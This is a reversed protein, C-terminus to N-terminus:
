PTEPARFANVGWADRLKAPKTPLGHARSRDFLPLGASLVSNFFCMLARSMEEPREITVFHGSDILLIAELGPVHEEMGCAYDVPQRPDHEGHVYVVPMTLKSYDVPVNRRIDRFYRPVAEALGPHSWEAIMERVTAEDPELGPKCASLVWTRIFGEPRRMLRTLADPDAAFTQHQLTNRPDYRHLSICCRMYREVRDPVQECVHDGIISGWDHGALRFRGIGLDDLLAVLERAVNRPTYDGEGKDSRGYGKLDIALARFQTALVPLQPRWCQWSEPLGHLLVVPDGEGAEVWHWTVGGVTRTHHVLESM